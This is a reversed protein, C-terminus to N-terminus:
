EDSLPMTLQLPLNKHADLSDFPHSIHQSATPKRTFFILMDRSADADRDCAYVPSLSHKRESDVILLTDLFNRHQAKCLLHEHNANSWQTGNAEKNDHIFTVASDDTMNKSGLFTTMTHEVGDSHVGELAPQGLLITNTITRLNFVTCVRKGTDVVLNKRPRVEVNRILISKIKLLAQFATNSQLDVMIEEFMRTIESDFRVFDENQSLVFPQAKLRSISDTEFDFLFRGNRSKRFLLTPDSALHNSIFKLGEIDSYTAGLCSIYQCLVDGKLFLVRDDIYQQRLKQMAHRFSASTKSASEACASM